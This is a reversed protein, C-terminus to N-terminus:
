CGPPFVPITYGAASTLTLAHLNHGQNFANANTGADANFNIAAGTLGFDSQSYLKMWGSRGAPIFQELRPTTRPFNNSLSNRLQCTGTVSFSLSNETDNYFIGFLTGLTSAGTALNGGVRNVVLLTDNGDARSPLNDLALVRPVMAYSIGDFSLTATSSNQDCFPLGGALAAIAQAGLNAAHGSAFKVYEDGILFNFNVPCGTADTAISIVYGTTGPDLDSALFSTTQNPTLCLYSDAVSCSAGDVFFLHVNASRGPDVNTISLRTNQRTPDTASTYINYILVSGARQDSMPSAANFPFGPGVVPCNITGCVQLNVPAGGGFSASNNTCVQTGATVNDAVQTLYTITVTQNAALTATYTLNTNTVTCTGVNPTVTCSGPVGILNTFTTTDSVSLLAGNPNGLVLTAGVTNGPGTCVLPDSVSGSFNVITITLIAEAFAGASDTVRLTFNATTANAAAAINATVQGSTNISIGSITVSNVIASSSGNISVALTSATQDADNVIAIQQSLVLRGLTVSLKAGTIIPPSNVTLKFISTASQGCNDIANVKIIYIGSPSANNITVAGTTTNGSFSGRFTGPPAIATVFAISNNDAPAASPIITVSSGPEVVQDSYIGISPPTDGLVNVTLYATSTLSGDSVQLVVRYSGPQVLCDAAVDATVTGSSNIINTVAIGTPATIATTTLANTVQEADVVTAIQSNIAVKGATRTIASSSTIVPPSNGNTCFRGIGLSPTDGGAISFSGGVYIDDGLIAIANVINDLGNGAVSGLGSWSNIQTNFRAVRNASVVTGLNNAYTFFGGVYLNSGSAEVTNIISGVGNGIGSDLASWVNTLTDFKAVYDVNVTTGGYNAQSFGGGVYLNGGSIALGYVNSSVGNGGGSGLASWINTLTDFKAVCNTPVILGGLNSQSFSGGVYLDSGSVAFDYVGSNVGNGSGTGLKSWLSTLTNVKAVNNTSVQTGGVNAVKFYGGAYLESGIVTLASVEGDLGNGGGSGISSWTKALLNFKAINNTGVQVGGVNATTFYGGVYLDGSIVTLAYVSGSVGNGSGNGLANWTNTLTNFKAIHNAMVNGAVTFSGGVYLDSGSVALSSVFGNIQNKAGSTLPTWTATLLNFKALQNTGLTTGSVNAMTFRGGVYLDSVSVAIANVSNDVGNGSGSGLVSWVNTLSSFKVINNANVTAGGINVVTFQGGLYLDGGSVLISLVSSNVGNGSGTGVASWTNTLTSFKAVYNANVQTGGLNATTFDGGVYLDNGKVAITRVSNNVGSGTGSGLLSWTNTATDLKTVNNVSIPAGNAGFITIASGGVFLDNGIVALAFIRSTEGGPGIDVTDWLNNQMDLKAMNNASMNGVSFFKGGVYLVSGIVAFANVSGNVGINFGQTPIGPLTGLPSWTKTSINFKAANNVLVETGDPYPDIVSGTAVNAREFIGGVYLDNEILALARVEGVERLSFNQGRVGNGSVSGLTSWTKTLTNYKAVSNAAVTGVITFKGGVYIDSGSVLLTLVEGNAGNDLGFQTDWGNCGPQAATPVFRPTGNETTEMRYGSANFSGNVGPKLSGDPGLVSALGNQDGGNKTNASSQSAGVRWGAFSLGALSLMIGLLIWWNRLAHLKTNMVAGKEQGHCCIKGHRRKHKLQNLNASHKEELCATPM